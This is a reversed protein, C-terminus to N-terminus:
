FYKKSQLKGDRMPVVGIHIHPTTEDNHVTAYAINQEDYRKQFWETATEFFRKQEAPALKDFFEKGSTVFFENVLVADKRTKRSSTKQREVTRMIEDRYSINQKHLLDYNLHSRTSDIDQNFSKRVENIINKFAM